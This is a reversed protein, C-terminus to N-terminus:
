FELLVTEVSAMEEHARTKIALNAAAALALILQLLAATEMAVLVLVALESFKLTIVGVEPAAAVVPMINRVEPLGVQLVQEAMEVVTPVTRMLVLHQPVKEEQVAVAVALVQPQHSDVMLDEVMDPVLINIELELAMRITRVAVVLAEM